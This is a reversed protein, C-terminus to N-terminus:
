TQSNYYTPITQILMDCNKDRKTENPLFLNLWIYYIIYKVLRCVHYYCFIIM